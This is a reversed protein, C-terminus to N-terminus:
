WNVKIAWQIIRANVGGGRVTDVTSNLKGFSNADIGTSLSGFNPHNFLNFFEFRIEFNFTESIAPFNTRKTIGLDQNIFRPANVGFDPFNGKQNVGPHAFCPTTQGTTCIVATTVGTTANINILGSAPDLWLAGAKPHKFVGVFKQFEQRSMNRLDAPQGIFAGTTVRNSIVTFPAGSSWRSTGQVQWGGIFKDLYANANGGLWQGKGFPLPYVFNASFSHTVDFAARNKDLRPNLISYYTQFESQSTLFRQDALVKSFTYNAGFFLGSSFRRRVEFEFGNYYSWSRNNVEIMSNLFPNAVFFNPVFNANRNTAFTNSRRLTDFVSGLRGESVPTTFVSANTFFASGTSGFLSTFIPLPRATAACTPSFTTGGCLSLNFQANQFETLLNAVSQGACAGITCTYPNSLVNIEDLDTARFLKVAHNGVYRAEVTWRKWLERSVSLNWELVYPTRLNKDFHWVSAGGNTLSFNRVSSVPIVAPPTAPTVQSTGQFVGTPLGTPSAPTNTSCGVAAACAAVVSFIGTQGTSALQFLTFGDQTFYTSFSGRISTKGDKFPDYAFGVFPAFNNWDKNYLPVGNRGGAFNLLTDTAVPSSSPQFFQGVPTPGWFGQEGGVVTLILRNRLDFVGQFEWRVGGTLTLNPRFKWSDQFYFAMNHQIPDVTRPSGAVFGSDPSTFNFGQSLSGVLGSVINYIGGARTLDGSSIGGLFDTSVIANPNASNSGLTIRPVVTNFFFSNALVQKYEGGFTMTHRGKVWGFNDIIQRVPTNRGQPLNASTLTPDTPTFVGAVFPLTLQRGGFLSFDNEMVFQVPARQYGVRAENTKNNGFTSHVAWTLVQRRSVQSGGPSKPFNPEIGNLLDPLSSFDSQNFVFEIAHNKTLQHDARLTYRDQVNSGALNFNFCSVNNTDSICGLNTNPNPVLSNYFNMVTTNITTFSPNGLTLLDVTRPAGPTVGAPCTAATCTPTYTFLGTRASPTLVTRTRNRALPERFAEYNGFLWTRNRGDYLKHLYVPGGAQVGIRNQLHFPRPTGAANGFWTNSNFAGTRQYWYVSGHFDNSGRATRITVQAAGFGADVGIGGVSVSFEGVTDVTPASIAFFSSTKVFNDAVNIGDQTINTTNGRLGHVFADAIGSSNPTVIGPMGKVLDLPNRTPLPLNLIQRRDVANILKASETEVVNQESRVIIETGGKALEMKANLVSAGGVNVQVRAFSYKAMGQAEISVNYFGFPLQAVVFSGQDNTTMSFEKGTALDTITVKAGAIVLDQPDLVVGRITGSLTVQAAAVASFLLLVIVLGAITFRSRHKKM